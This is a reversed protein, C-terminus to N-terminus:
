SLSQYSTCRAREACEHERGLSMCKQSSANQGSTRSTKRCSALTLLLNGIARGLRVPVANGIQLYKNAKTGMFRYSSPFDQLAAYEPVSLPREHDPHCLGTALHQPQTPLTPAPRDWSLRRWYGVKGGGSDIAGKMIQKLGEPFLEPNDRIFLWNCGSPIRRWVAIRQESYTFMDERPCPRDTLHGIADRLTRWPVIPMYPAVEHHTPPLLHLPTMREGTTKKFRGSGLERDRSGLIVLRHRCQATGYDAANLLGYIVEYGLHAFGPLIILEFVSGLRQDDSLDAEEPDERQRAIREDYPRHKIAVSLLGRVNEFVFFRPRLAKIMDFYHEVVQGRRENVSQRLGATSFAQCPPGGAVLFADGQSLGTAMMVDEPSVTAIDGFLADKIAPNNERLTLQCDPDKEVWACCRIQGEGASELGLDLGGAGSFLSVMPLGDPRDTHFLPLYKSKKNQRGAM